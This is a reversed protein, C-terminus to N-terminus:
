WILKYYAEAADLLRNIANEAARKDGLALADLFARHCDLTIQRNPIPGLTRQRLRAVQDDVTEMLQTIRRNGGGSLFHSRFKANAAIFAKADPKNIAKAEQAVAEQFAIVLAPERAAVITQAIAPEVLRRLQMIERVDDATPEPMRYGRGTDELVGERCLQFLAERIPTRSVQLQDALDEEALGADPFTGDRLM